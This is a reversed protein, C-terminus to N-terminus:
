FFALTCFLVIRGDMEAFMGWNTRWDNWFQTLRRRLGNTARFRQWHERLAAYPFYIAALIAAQLMVLFWGDYRSLTACFGYFAALIFAILDQRNYLFKVFYYSSLVFFAILPLETMPTAQLYLINPNLMFIAATLLSAGRHNTILYTLKFLFTAALVYAAGSVISGALGTRWFFDFGIFPLMLIHPLPLWIGGLQAPGPTLSDVVRKAINLHSEADGYSIVVNNALAICTAVFALAISGFLVVRELPARLWWRQAGDFYKKPINISIRM